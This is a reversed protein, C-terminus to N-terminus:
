QTRIDNTSMRARKEVLQPVKALRKVTHIHLVSYVADMCILGPLLINKDHSTTVTTVAVVVMLMIMMMYFEIDM